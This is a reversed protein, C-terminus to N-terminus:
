HVNQKVPISYIVKDLKWGQEKYFQKWCARDYSQIQECDNTVAWNYVADNVESLWEKVDDGVTARVRCLTLHAYEVRQILTVGVVKDGELIIFAGTFGSALTEYLREIDDVEIMHDMCKFMFSEIERWLTPVADPCLLTVSYNKTTNGM